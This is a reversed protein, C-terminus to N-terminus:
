CLDVIQESPHSLIILNSLFLIHAGWFWWANWFNYGWSFAAHEEFDSKESESWLLFSFLDLSSGESHKSHLSVGVHDEFDNTDLFAVLAIGSLGHRTLYLM